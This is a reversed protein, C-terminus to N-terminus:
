QVGRTEKDKEIIEIAKRAIEIKETLSIKDTSALYAIRREIEEIERGGNEQAESM